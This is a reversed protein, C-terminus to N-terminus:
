LHLVCQKALSSAWRGTLEALLLAPPLVAGLHWSQRTFAACLRWVAAADWGSLLPDECSLISHSPPRRLDPSSLVLYLKSFNMVWLAPEPSPANFPQALLCSLLYLREERTQSNLSPGHHCVSIAIEAHHTNTVSSPPSLGARVALFRCRSLVTM